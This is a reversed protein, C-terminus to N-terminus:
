LKQKQVQKALSQHEVPLREPVPRKYFGTNMFSQTVFLTIYIVHHLSNSM